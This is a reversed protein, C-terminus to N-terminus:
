SLSKKYKTPTTDTHKKFAFNFASKSNFGCEYVIELITKGSDKNKAILRQGRSDPPQKHLGSLDYPLAHQHMRIGAARKGWHKPALDSIGINFLLYPKEKAMFAELRHQLKSFEDQTMSLTRVKKIEGGFHSGMLANVLIIAFYLFFLISSIYLYASIDKDTGSLLATKAINNCVCAIFYGYIIFRNWRIRKLVTTSKSRNTKAFREITIISFLNYLFVQIPIFLDFAKRFSFDLERSYLLERKEVISHQHYFVVFYLTLFLLPLYHLLYIPRFRFDVETEAKIYLYMTPGWATFFPIAIYALYPYPEYTLDFHARGLQEMSGLIQAFFFFAMLKNSVRGGGKYLLVAILPIQVFISLIHIIDFSTFSM